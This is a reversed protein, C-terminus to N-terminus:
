FFVMQEFIKRQNEANDTDSDESEFTQEINKNARLESLSLSVSQRSQRRSKHATPLLVRQVYREFEENREVAPVQTGFVVDIWINLVIDGAMSIAEFHKEVHAITEDIMTGANKYMDGWGAQCWIKLFEPKLEPHGQFGYTFSLSSQVTSKGIKFLTNYLNTKALLHIKEFGHKTEVNFPLEFTDQHFLVIKEDLQQHRLTAMLPDQSTEDHKETWQWKKFGIEVGQSGKFVKGGACEALLHCGLCIGFIPVAQFIAQRIFEKENRIWPYKEQEHVGVNGGLVIIADFMPASLDEFANDHFAYIVQYPIKTKMIKIRVAMMRLVSFFFLFFLSFVKHTALVAAATQPPAINDNQIILVRPMPPYPRNRRISTRSKAHQVKETGISNNKTEEEGDKSKPLPVEDITGITSLNSIENPNFKVSFTSQFPQILKNIDNAESSIISYKDLQKQTSGQGVNSVGNTQQNLEKIKSIYAGINSIEAAIEENRLKSKNALEELLIQKETKHRTALLVSLEQLNEKLNQLKTLDTQNSNKGTESTSM